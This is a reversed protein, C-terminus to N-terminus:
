ANGRPSAHSASSDYELQPVQSPGVILSRHAGARPDSVVHCIPQVHRIVFLVFLGCVEQGRFADSQVAFLEKKVNLIEARLERLLDQHMANTQQSFVPLFSKNIAEKIHREILPTLQSSLIHAFHSSVDPRLLLKEIEM